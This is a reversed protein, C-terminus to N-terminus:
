GALLFLFAFFERPRDQIGASVHHKEDYDGWSVVGGTFMVIRTLPVLPASMGDVGFKLSIGLAPLWDHQDIFQYGTMGGLLYQLYVWGALILDIAATALAIGRIETKLDAPMLLMVVAAVFPLFPIISLIRFNM